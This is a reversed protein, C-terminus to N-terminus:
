HRYNLRKSKRDLGSDQVVPLPDLTVPGLLESLPVARMRPMASVKVPADASDLFRTRLSVGPPEDQELELFWQPQADAGARASTRPHELDHALQKLRKLGRKLRATTEALTLQASLPDLDTGRLDLRRPRSRLSWKELRRQEPM